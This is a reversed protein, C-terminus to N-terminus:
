QILMLPIKQYNILSGGGNRGGYNTIFLRCQFSSYGFNKSEEEITKTNYITFNFDEPFFFISGV